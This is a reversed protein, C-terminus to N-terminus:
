AGMIGKDSLPALGRLFIKSLATKAPFYEDSGVSAASLTADDKPMTLGKM